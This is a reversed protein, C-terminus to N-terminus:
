LRSGVILVTEIGEIVDDLASVNLSEFFMTDMQSRARDFDKAGAEFIRDAVQLDQIAAAVDASLLGPYM